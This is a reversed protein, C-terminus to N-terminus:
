IIRLCSLKNIVYDFAANIDNVSNGTCIMRGSDFLLIVTKPENLGCILGPFEEPKYVIYAEGKLKKYIEKLNIRKNLDKSSILKYIKIETKENVTIGAISLANRIINIINEYEELSRGGMLFVDGNRFLLIAVEPKNMHYKLVSVDDPNYVSDPLVKSISELDLSPAISASAIINEIIFENM